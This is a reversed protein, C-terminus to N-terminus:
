AVLAPRLRHLPCEELVAFMAQSDAAQLLRERRASDQSLRALASVLQLYTAGDNEPVACLFVLDVTEKGFWLLPEAPRGVAFALGPLGPVRAHPLAWGPSTVTSSLSERGIVAHFFSLLDHVKGQCQLASCLEATVTTADTGRLRSIMLAPSSYHALVDHTRAGARRAHVERYSSMLGAGWALEM